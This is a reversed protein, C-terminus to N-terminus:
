RRQVFTLRGPRLPSVHWPCVDYPNSPHTSERYQVRKPADVPVVQLNLKEWEVQPMATVRFISNITLSECDGTWHVTVFSLDQLMMHLWFGLKLNENLYCIKASTSSRLGLLKFNVPFTKRITLLINRSAVFNKL